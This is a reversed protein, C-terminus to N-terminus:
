WTQNLNERLCLRRWDAKYYAQRALSQQQDPLLEKIWTVGSQELQIWVHKLEKCDKYTLQVLPPSKSPKSRKFPQSEPM